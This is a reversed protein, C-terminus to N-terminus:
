RWATAESAQICYHEYKSGRGAQPIACATVQFEGDGVAVMQTFQDDDYTIEANREGHGAAKAQVQDGPNGREIKAWVAQCDKSYRLSLMAPNGTEPKFSKADEACGQNKPNKGDCAEGPCTPEDLIVKMLRDGLPTVVSAVVTGTVAVVLALVTANSRWGRRNEPSPSGPEPAPSPSGPEPAPSPSGPESPTVSTNDDNSMTM